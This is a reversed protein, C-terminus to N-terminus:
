EKSPTFIPSPFNTVNSGANESLIKNSGEKIVKDIRIVSQMPIYCSEVGAFESQLKEESPDILIDSKDGFILDGIEIFGIMGSQTVSRAYIEYINGQNNFIVKYVQKESM